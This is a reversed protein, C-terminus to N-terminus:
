RIIQRWQVSARHSHVGVRIAERKIRINVAVPVGQDVELHECPILLAWACKGAEQILNIRVFYVSLGLSTVPCACACDIKKARNAAHRSVTLKESNTIGM